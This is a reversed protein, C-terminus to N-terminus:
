VLYKKDFSTVQEFFSSGVHITILFFLNQLFQKNYILYSPQIYNQPSIEIMLTFILFRLCMNATREPKHTINISELTFFSMFNYDYTYYTHRIYSLWSSLASDRSHMCGNRHFYM